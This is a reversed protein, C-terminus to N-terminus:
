GLEGFTLRDAFISECSMEIEQIFFPLLVDWISHKINLEHEICIEIRYKQILSYKSIHDKSKYKWLENPMRRCVVNLYSIFLVIFVCSSAKMNSFMFWSNFLQFKITIKDIIIFFAIEKFEKVWSWIFKQRLVVFHLAM